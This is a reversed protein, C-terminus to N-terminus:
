IAVKISILLQHMPIEMLLLLNLLPVVMIMLRLLILPLTTNGSVTISQTATCGNDDVTATYTGPASVSISSGFQGTNWRVSGSSVNATLTVQPQTPLILAQLLFPFLGVLNVQIGDLLVV